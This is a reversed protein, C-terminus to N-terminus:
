GTLAVEAGDGDQALGALRGDPQRRRAGCVPECGRKTEEGLRRRRVLAHLEEEATRIRQRPGAVEVVAVACQEIRERNHGLVCVYHAGPKGTSTGPHLAHESPM